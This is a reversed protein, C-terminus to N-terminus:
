RIFPPHNYDEYSQALRVHGNQELTVVNPTFHLASQAESFPLVTNERFAWMNQRWDPTDSKPTQWRAFGDVHIAHRFFAADNGTVHIVPGITGTIRIAAFGEWATGMAPDNLYDFNYDQAEQQSGIIQQITNHNLVLYGCSDCTIAAHLRLKSVEAQTRGKLPIRRIMNERIVTRGANLFYESMALVPENEVIIASHVWDFRNQAITVDFMEGGRTWVGFNRSPVQTDFRGAVETFLDRLKENDITSAVLEVESFLTDMAARDLVAMVPSGGGTPNATEAVDAKLSMVTAGMVSRKFTDWGMATTPADLALIRSAQKLFRITNDREAIPLASADLVLDSNGPLAYLGKANDERFGRPRAAAVVADVNGAVRKVETSKSGPALGTFFCGTVSKRGIGDILLGLRNEVIAFSCGAVSASAASDDNRLKVVVMPVPMETIERELGQAAFRCDNLAVEQTDLIRLCAGKGNEVEMAMDAVAVSTCADFVFQGEDSMSIVSIGHGAGKLRIHGLKDFRVEKRIRYAGRPFCILASGSPGTKNSQRDRSLRVVIDQLQEDTDGDPDICFTCQCDGGTDRAFLLDIAGQVTNAAVEAHHHNSWAVQQAELATLAPFRRTRFDSATTEPVFSGDRVSGLFTYAHVTEVPEPDFRLMDGTADAYERIDVIWTDGQLIFPVGGARPSAQFTMDLDMIRLDLVWSAGRAISGSLGLNGIPVPDLGTQSLDIWVAGDWVRLMRGDLDAAAMAALQTKNVVQAARPQRIHPHVGLQQESGISFIEFVAADFAPDALVLRVQEGPVEISANDRAFKLLIRPERDSATEPNEIELGALGIRASAYASQHVELRFLHNGIQLDDAELATACPDCPDAALSTDTQRVQVLRLDGFPPLGHPAETEQMAGQPVDGQVPILKIQAMRERRVATEAGLFGPDVLRRDEAAGVHRDFVDAYVAFHGTAPPPPSLLMDAQKAILDLPRGPDLSEGDRLRVEALTGDAIVRGPQLGAVSMVDAPGSARVYRLIGGTAPVGSGIGTDGLGSLSREAIDQTEAQDADSVMAGQLPRLGSYRRDRRHSYRSFNGSM